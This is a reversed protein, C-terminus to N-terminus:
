WIVLGPFDLIVASKGNADLDATLIHAANLDHVPLWQSDNLWIWVGHGPFDLILDSQGNGDVDGSAMEKPSSSHLQRFRGDAYRLWLGSAGFDLAIDSKQQAHAPAAVASLLVLLGAVFCLKKLCVVAATFRKMVVIEAESYGCCAAVPDIESRRHTRHCCTAVTTGGM